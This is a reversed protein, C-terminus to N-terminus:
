ARMGARGREVRFEAVTDVTANRDAADSVARYRITAADRGLDMTAYGRRTGEVFRIHPNDAHWTRGPNRTPGRSSISSVTFESAVVPAAPDDFDAKLDSACFAHIDGSLVMTDARNREQLHRLLRQRAAPYGDWSDNSFGVNGERNRERRQAMQMDQAIINWRTPSADLGTRLWDEQDMGLLSRRPERREACEADFLLRFNRASERTQCAPASRYQRGDLLHVTVLDGFGQRRFLQLANRQPRSAARLPMHEYFAQYASRRRAAFREPEVFDQNWLNAYNNRVEHDDWGIMATAAAHIARLDPDLKYQTYRRRYDNLSTVLREGDHSRVIPRTREHSEYIYDGLFLVLDPRDAACHRYASFWGHEYNSCSVWALRLREPQAGAAPASLASGIASTATGSTFRYWYRRGPELGTVEHHVSWAWRAEALATGTQVINRLTADTAIEYQVPLSAGRMGAIAGDQDVLPEPALRTWIVFGDPAPDGSAVGLSFPDTKWAIDSAARAQVWPAGAGIGVAALGGAGLLRRRQSYFTTMNDPM